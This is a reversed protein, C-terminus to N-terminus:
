CHPNAAYTGVTPTESLASRVAALLEEPQYPKQVFHIGDRLWGNATSLEVNYGSTYIVKLSARENQCRVALDRGSVGQPMVVDTLLLDIENKHEAWVRLASRGSDATLVSYGQLKLLRTVLNRVSADDDVLLIARSTAGGNLAPRECSGTGDSTM